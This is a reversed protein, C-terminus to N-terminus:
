QEKIKEVKYYNTEKNDSNIVKVSEGSRILSNSQAQYFTGKFKIEGFENPKIDKTVTAYTNNDIKNNNFSQINQEGYFISKLYKRLLLLSALSSTIFLMIQKNLDIDIELLGLTISVIWSGVGFFFLVFAPSTMELIFFGLGIFFWILYTYDFINM